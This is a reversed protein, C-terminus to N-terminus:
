MLVVYILLGIAAIVVVALVVFIWKPTGKKASAMPAASPAPSNM